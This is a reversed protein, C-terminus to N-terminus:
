REAALEITLNKIVHPLTGLRGPLKPKLDIEARTFGPITTLFDQALPPYRGVIKKAIEDPKVEPLLNVDITALFEFIGGESDELDFTVVIQDERLIFGSPVKDKLIEKVLDDLKVREIV